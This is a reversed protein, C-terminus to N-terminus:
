EGVLSKKLEPGIEYYFMQQAYTWMRRHVFGTLPGYQRVPNLSTSDLDIQRMFEDVSFTEFLAPTTMNLRKLLPTLEDKSFHNLHIRYYWPHQHFYYDVLYVIDDKCILSFLPPSNEASHDIINLVPYLPDGTTELSLNSSSVGDLFQVSGHDVKLHAEIRDGSLPNVKYSITPPHGTQDIKLEFNDLGLVITQLENNENFILGVRRTKGQDLIFPGSLDEFSFAHRSNDVAWRLKREDDDVVVYFGKGERVPYRHIPLQIDEGSM